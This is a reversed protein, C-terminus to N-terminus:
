RQEIKNKQLTQKYGEKVILHNFEQISRKLEDAYRWDYYGRIHRDKDVLVAFSYNVYYPKQLFYKQNILNFTTDPLYFSHINPLNLHLSDKLNFFTSNNKFPYVLVIPIHKIKEPEYHAMTLFQDIRFKEKIYEPKIFAIMFVKFNNTDLSVPQLKESLFTTEKVSYYITDKQNNALKKPGFYNLKKSRILSVDLLIWILSPLLIIIVVIWGKNKM